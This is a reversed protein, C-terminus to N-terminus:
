LSIPQGTAASELIACIIRTAAVGDEGTALVPGDHAIADVFYAISDLV